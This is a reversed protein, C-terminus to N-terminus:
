LCGSLWVGRFPPCLHQDVASQFSKGQKYVDFFLFRHELVRCLKLAVMLDQWLDVNLETIHEEVDPGTNSFARRPVSVDKSRSVNPNATELSM